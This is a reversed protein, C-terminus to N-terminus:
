NPLIGLQDAIRRMHFISDALVEGLREPAGGALHHGTKQLADRVEPLLLVRNLDRNLSQVM